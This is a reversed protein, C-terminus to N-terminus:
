HYGSLTIVKLGLSVLRMKLTIVIDLDVHVGYRELKLLTSPWKGLQDYLGISLM